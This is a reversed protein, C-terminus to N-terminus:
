EGYRFKTQLESCIDQDTISYAHTPPGSYLAVPEQSEWGTVVLRGDCIVFNLRRLARPAPGFICKAGQALDFTSGACPDFAVPTSPLRSPPAWMDKIHEQPRGYIEVICGLHPSIRSYVQFGTALEEPRVRAYAPLQIVLAPMAIGMSNRPTPPVRWIFEQYDWDHTLGALSIAAHPDIYQAPARRSLAWQRGLLVLVLLVVSLASLRLLVKALPLLRRLTPPTKRM